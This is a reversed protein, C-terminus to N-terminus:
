KKRNAKEYMGNILLGLTYFQSERRIKLPKMKHGAEWDKLWQVM